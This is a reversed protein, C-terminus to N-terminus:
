EREADPKDVECTKKNCNLYSMNVLNNKRFCLNTKKKLESVILSKGFDSSNFLFDLM